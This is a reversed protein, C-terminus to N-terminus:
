FPCDDFDLVHQHTAWWAALSPRKNDFPTEGVSVVQFSGDGGNEYVQGALQAAKTRAYAEGEYLAPQLYARVTSYGEVGGVREWGGTRYIQYAM